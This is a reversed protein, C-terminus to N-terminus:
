AAEREAADQQDLTDGDEIDVQQPAPAPPRLSIRGEERSLFHLQGSMEPTPFVRANFTLELSGGDLAKFVFASLTVDDFELSDSLGLDTDIAMRYGPFKDRLRLPELMPHALATLGDEPQPMLDPQEPEDKDRTVPRANAKSYLFPRYDPGFADLVLSSVVMKIKIDGAPVHDNKGRKETTANYNTCTFPQNEPQFM